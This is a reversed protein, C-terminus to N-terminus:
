FNSTSQKMWSWIRAFRGIKLEEYANKRAEAQAQTEENDRSSGQRHKSQEQRELEKNFSKAAMFVNAPREWGQGYIGYGEKPQPRILHELVALEETDVWHICNVPCSEMSMEIQADHDGYQVKIRATGSAEDMTFTNGAYHVCKWCGVCATEDVFLAQPRPPEKWVSGLANREIGVRVRGISRDYEKRLDGRVLVEYAKNLMVTSEHGKDGAIDPHYKKQLKRYADKIQVGSADVPVGLLEYHNKSSEAEKKVCCRTSVSGRRRWWISNKFNCYQDPKPNLIPQHTSPSAALM